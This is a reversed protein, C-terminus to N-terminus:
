ITELARLATLEGEIGLLDRELSVGTENMTQVQQQLQAFRAELAAIDAKKADRRAEAYAVARAIQDQM